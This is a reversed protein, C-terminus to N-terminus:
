IWDTPEYDEECWGFHRCQYEDIADNAPWLLLGVLVFILVGSIWGATRSRTRDHVKMGGAISSWLMAAIIGFKVLGFGIGALFDM